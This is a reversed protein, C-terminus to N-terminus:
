SDFPAPASEQATQVKRTTTIMIIKMITTITTTM